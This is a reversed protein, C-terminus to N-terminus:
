VRRERVARLLAQRTDHVTRWELLELGGREEPDPKPWPAECLRFSLWRWSVGHLDVQRGLECCARRWDEDRERRPV